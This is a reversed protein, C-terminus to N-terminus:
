YLICGMLVISGIFNNVKFVCSSHVEVLTPSDCDVFMEDINVGNVMSPFLAIRRVNLSDMFSVHVERCELEREVCPLGDPILVLPQKSVCHVLLLKNKKLPSAQKGRITRFHAM